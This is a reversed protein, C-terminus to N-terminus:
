KLKLGPLVDVYDDPRDGLVIELFITSVLLELGVIGAPAHPSNPSWRLVGGNATAQTLCTAKDAQHRKSWLM